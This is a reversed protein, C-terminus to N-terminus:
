PADVLVVLDARPPGNPDQPVQSPDDLRQVPRIILSTPAQVRRPIGYGYDIHGAGAFVVITQDDSKNAILTSVAHAMTEDWVLQAEYYRALAADSLRHGPHSAAAAAMLARFYAEHQPNGSDLPPLKSAITDPVGDKGHRAVARALGPEANIGLLRIKAARVAVFLPAYAEFAHGWRKPWSLADHLESAPRDSQLWDDLSTQDSPSLWEVAVTPVRGLRQLRHLVARQARHFAPVGHQEAVYVVDAARLAADVDDAAVRRGDHQHWSLAPM